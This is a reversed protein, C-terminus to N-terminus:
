FYMPTQIEFREILSTIAIQFTDLLWLRTQRFKLATYTDVNVGDPRNELLM